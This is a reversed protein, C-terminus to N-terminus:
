PTIVTASADAAVREFAAALPEAPRWNVVAIGQRRLEAIRIRRAATAQRGGTTEGVLAPTYVTVAQGAQHLERALDVIADDCLPSILVVQTRQTLRGILEVAEVRREDEPGDGDVAQDLLSRLQVRHERGTGPSIWAVAPTVASVGALNSPEVGLVGVGVRNRHRLLGDLLESALYVGLETGTPATDVSAVDAVRRGDVILHVDVAEQERYEITSLQRDRAYQRWNIRTLPDEPQYSRIGHFELGSGGRDVPWEGVAGTTQSALPYSSPELTATIRNHGDAVREDDVVEVGSLSHTRLLVSAFQHEGHRARLAYTITESEGAELSLVARPSGEIVALEDPVGDIVRLDVLPDERQNTITLEVSVVGGPYTRTPTISRELRIADTVPPARTLAGYAVFAFPVMAAVVLVPELLWIGAGALWLSGTIVVRWRSRYGTM